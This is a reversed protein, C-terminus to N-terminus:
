LQIKFVPIYNNVELTYKEDKNPNLFECLPNITNASDRLDGGGLYGDWAYTM